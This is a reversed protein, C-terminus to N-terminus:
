RHGSWRKLRQRLLDLNSHKEVLGPFDEALQEVTPLEGWATVTFVEFVRDSVIGLERNERQLRARLTEAWDEISRPAQMQHRGVWPLWEMLQSQHCFTMKLIQPFADEVDIGLDFANAGAMYGDYTNLIVPVKCLESKTEDAPYEPTFAHPVNIMYAVQRVAEAVAIHDVHIGALPDAPIPPCFLYDPEFDRIAKWLSALLPISVQLCAERPVEGNPLRLVELEYGGIRASAEQEEMRIRHLEERTRFQHGAKGDTCVMVRARLEPGLKRKWLEFLGSAVFEYDDFHAHVCLIKMAGTHPM